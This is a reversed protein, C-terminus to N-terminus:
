DKQLLMVTRRCPCKKGDSPKHRQTTDDMVSIDIFIM